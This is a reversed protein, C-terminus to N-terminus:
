ILQFIKLIRRNLIERPFILNISFYVSIIFFFATYYYYLEIEQFLSFFESKWRRIVNKGERYDMMGHLIFIFIFIFFPFIRSLFLLELLIFNLDLFSIRM